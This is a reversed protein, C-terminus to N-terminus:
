LWCIGIAVNERWFSGFAVNRVRQSLWWTSRFEILTSFQVLAFFQFLNQTNGRFDKKPRTYVPTKLPTGIFSSSLCSAFLFIGVEPLVSAGKDKCLHISIIWRLIAEICRSIDAHVRIFCVGKHRDIDGRVRVLLANGCHTLVNVFRQVTNHKTQHM